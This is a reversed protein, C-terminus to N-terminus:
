FYIFPRPPLNDLKENFFQNANQWFAFDGLISKVALIHNTDACFALFTNKAQHVCVFVKIYFDM